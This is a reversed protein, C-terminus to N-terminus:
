GPFVLTSYIFQEPFRLLFLIPEVNTRFNFFEIFDKRMRLSSLLQIQDKYKHM